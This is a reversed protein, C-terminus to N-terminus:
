ETLSRGVPESSTPMPKELTSCNATDADIRWDFAKPVPLNMEALMLLPRTFV